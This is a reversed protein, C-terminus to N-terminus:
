WFKWWPKKSNPSKDTTNIEDTRDGIVMFDIHIAILNGSVDYGGIIPYVGDGWGSHFLILNNNCTSQPLIINAIGERIHNKNDMLNFWSDTKENEFLGEYWEDHPPMGEELSQQDVFCATGADVGFGMYEDEELSSDEIHGNKSPCLLRRETEVSDGNLVLSAYAERYHSGDNEKSVDALTVIVKYKGPPIQVYSNGFKEMGAFPDCCVLKGSPAKLEGCEILSLVYNGEAGPVTAEKLASWSPSNPWKM